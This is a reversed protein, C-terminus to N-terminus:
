EQEQQAIAEELFSSFKDSNIVLTLAESASVKYEASKEKLLARTTRPMVLCFNEKIEGYKKHSTKYLMSKRFGIHRVNNTYGVPRETSKAWVRTM